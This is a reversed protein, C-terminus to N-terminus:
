GSPPRPTWGLGRQLWENMSESRLHCVLSRQQRGGDSRAQLTEGPPLLFVPGIREFRHPGWHHSYCGRSNRPRPTLCFDLRYEEDEHLAGSVPEIFQFQVLQVTATPVSLEAEVTMMQEEPRWM